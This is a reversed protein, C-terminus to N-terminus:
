IITSKKELKYNSAYTVKYCTKVNYLNMTMPLAIMNHGGESLHFYRGVQNHDYVNM